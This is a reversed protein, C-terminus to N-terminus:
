CDVRGTSEHVLDVDVDQVLVLASLSELAGLGGNVDVVAEDAGLGVLLVVVQALDVNASRKSAIAAVAIVLEDANVVLVCTAKWGILYM